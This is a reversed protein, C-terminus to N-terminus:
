SHEPHRPEELFHVGGDRLVPVAPKIAGLLLKLVAQPRRGGHINAIQGEVGSFLLHILREGFAAVDLTDDHPQVFLVACWTAEAKHDKVRPLVCLVTHFVDVAGGQVVAGDSHVKVPAKLLAPLIPTAGAAALHSVLVAQLVVRPAAAISFDDLLFHFVHSATAHTASVSPGRTTATPAVWHLLLPLQRVVVLTPWWSFPLPHVVVLLTILAPGGHLAVGPEPLFVRVVLVSPQQLQVFCNGGEVKGGEMSGLGAPFAGRVAM